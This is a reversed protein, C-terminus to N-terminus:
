SIAATVAGIAFAVTAGSAVTLSSGLAMGGLYTGSTSATWISSYPVTCSPMSTFNQANTSTEVGGSASGFALALRGYSGGSVESGGSTTPDATNLALYYTTSPVFMAAVAANEQAAPLRSM